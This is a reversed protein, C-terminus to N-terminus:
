EAAELMKVITESRSRHCKGKYYTTFGMKVMQEAILENSSWTLDELNDYDMLSMEVWESDSKLANALYNIRETRTM